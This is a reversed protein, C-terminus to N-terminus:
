TDGHVFPDGVAKADILAAGILYKEAAERTLRGQWTRFPPQTWGSDGTVNGTRNGTADEGARRAPAYSTVLGITNLPWGGCFSSWRRLAASTVPSELPVVDFGALRHLVGEPITEAFKAVLAEVLV